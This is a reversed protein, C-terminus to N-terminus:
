EVFRSSPLVVSESCVLARRGYRDASRSTTISALTAVEDLRTGGTAPKLNDWLARAVVRTVARGFPRYAANSYGASRVRAGCVEVSIHTISDLPVQSENATLTM